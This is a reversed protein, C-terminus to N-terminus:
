FEPGQYDEDRSYPSVGSYNQLQLQAKREAKRSKKQVFLGILLFGGAFILMLIGGNRYNKVSAADAYEDPEDCVYRLHLGSDIPNTGYERMYDVAYDVAEAYYDEMDDHLSRISESQLCADVTLFDMSFDCSRAAEKWESSNDLYVSFLVIQANPDQYYAIYYTGSDDSNGTVAGYKEWVYLSEFDYAADAVFENRMLGSAAQLEPPQAQETFFMAFGMLLFCGALVYLLVAHKM